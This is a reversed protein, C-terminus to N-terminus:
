SSLIYMMGRDPWVFGARDNSRERGSVHLMGTLSSAFRFASSAPEPRGFRPRSVAVFEATYHAGPLGLGNATREERQFFFLLFRHHFAQQAPM